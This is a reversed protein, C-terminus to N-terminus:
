EVTLYPKLTNFRTQGLIGRDMLEELSRYDGDNERSAIIKGATVSGIGDIRQLDEATALNINIKGDVSVAHANSESANEEYVFGSEILTHQGYLVGGGFCIAGFLLLGIILWTKKTKKDKM